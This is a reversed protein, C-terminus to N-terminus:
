SGPLCYAARLDDDHVGIEAPMRMKRPITEPPRPTQPTVVLVAEAFEQRVRFAIATLVACAQREQLLDVGKMALEPLGYRCM